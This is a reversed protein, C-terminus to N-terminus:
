GGRLRNMLVAVLPRPIAPEGLLVARVVAPLRKPSISKPLYGIAGVAMAKLFEEEKLESALMVVAVSSRWARMEAAAVIGGGPLDVDVLCLDPELRAVGDVLEAASAVRGCLVIGEDELAIRIGNITASDHGAVLVRPAPQGAKAPELDPEIDTM